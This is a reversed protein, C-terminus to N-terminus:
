LNNLSKLFQFWDPNWVFKFYAPSPKEVEFWINEKKYPLIVLSLAGKADFSVKVDKFDLGNLESIEPDVLIGDQTISLGRDAITTDASLLIKIGVKGGFFTCFNSIENNLTFFNIYEINIEFTKVLIIIHM